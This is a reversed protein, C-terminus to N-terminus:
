MEGKMLAEFVPDTWLRLGDTTKKHYLKMREADIKARVEAYQDEEFIGCEIINYKTDFVVQIGAAEADRKLDFVDIIGDNMDNIVAAVENLVRLTRVPGFKLLKRLVLIFICYMMGMYQNKAQEHAEGQFQSLKKEISADMAHAAECFQGVTVVAKKKRKLKSSM